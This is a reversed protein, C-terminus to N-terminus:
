EEKQKVVRATLLAASVSAGLAYMPIPTAAATSYNIAAITFCSMWIIHWFMSLWIGVINMWKFSTHMLSGSVGIWIGWVWTHGYSYDILPQYSPLSFRQPGGAIVAMALGVNVAIMANTLWKLLHEEAWLSNAFNRVKKM